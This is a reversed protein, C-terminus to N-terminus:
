PFYATLQQLTLNRIVIAYKGQWPYFADAALGLRQQLNAILTKKHEGHARKSYIFVATSGPISIEAFSTQDAPANEYVTNPPIISAIYEALKESFGSSFNQEYLPIIRNYDHEAPPWPFPMPTYGPPLTVSGRMFLPRTSPPPSPSHQVKHDRSWSPALAPPPSDARRIPTRTPFLFSGLGSISSTASTSAARPSPPLSVQPATLQSLSDQAFKELDSSKLIIIKYIIKLQSIMQFLKDLSYTNFLTEGASNFEFGVTKTLDRNETILRKKLPGTEPNIIDRIRQWFEPSIQSNTSTKELEEVLTKITSILLTKVTNQTNKIDSNLKELEQAQVTTLLNAKNAKYASYCAELTLSAKIKDFEIPLLTPKLNDAFTYLTESLYLFYYMAFKPKNESPLTASDNTLKAPLRKILELMSRCAPHSSLVPFKAIIMEWGTYIHVISSQVTQVTSVPSVPSTLLSQKLEFYSLM